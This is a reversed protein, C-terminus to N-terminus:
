KQILNIPQGGLTGTFAEPPKLWQEYFAAGAQIGGIATLAITLWVIRTQIKRNDNHRRDDEVYATVTNLAKATLKYGGHDAAALDGSDKLADLIFTYYNMLEEKDPRHVWRVTYFHTLLRTSDTQFARTKITEALIYELVKMRDQRTLEKRNFRAQLIRDFRVKIWPWGTWRYLLLKPMGLTPFSWGRYYHEVYLVYNALDAVPIARDETFTKGDLSWKGRIETGDM